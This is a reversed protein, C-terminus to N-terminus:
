TTVRRRFQLINGEPDWGDLIDYGRWSWRAAAEELGGGAAVIASRLSGIDAVPFVPKIPTDERLIPPCEIHIDQAIEPPVQHIVLELGPGTLVQHTEAVEAVELGLVARYFSSTHALDRVYIVLACTVQAPDFTNM